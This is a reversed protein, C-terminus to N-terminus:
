EAKGFIEEMSYVRWPSEGKAICMQKRVDAQNKAAGIAVWREFGEYTKFLRCKERPRDVLEGSLSFMGILILDMTDYTEMRVMERDEREVRGTCTMMDQEDYAIVYLRNDKTSKVGM